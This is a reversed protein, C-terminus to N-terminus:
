TSAHRMVTHHSRKSAGKGRPFALYLWLIDNLMSRSWSNTPLITKQPASKAWMSGDDKQIRMTFARHMPIGQCWHRGDTQCISRCWSRSSMLDEIVPLSSIASWVRYADDIADKGWDHFAVEQVINLNQVSLRQAVNCPLAFIWAGHWSTQSSSQPHRNTSGLIRFFTGVRGRRGILKLMRIM